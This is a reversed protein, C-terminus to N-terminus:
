QRDHESRTKHNGNTRSRQFVDSFFACECSRSTMKSRLKLSSSFCNLSVLVRRRIRLLYRLHAPSTSFRNGAKVVKVVKAVKVGKAKPTVSGRNRTTGAGMIRSVEKAKEKGKAKVKVRVLTPHLAKRYM